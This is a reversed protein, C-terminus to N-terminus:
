LVRQIEPSRFGSQFGSGPKRRIGEWWIWMWELSAEGKREGERGREEERGREREREYEKGLYKWPSVRVECKHQYCEESFVATDVTGFGRGM